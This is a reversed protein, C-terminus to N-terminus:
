LSRRRGNVPAWRWAARVMSKPISSIADEAVTFIIPIVALSLAVGGVFANDLRM